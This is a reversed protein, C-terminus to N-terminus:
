ERPLLDQRFWPRPDVHTPIKGLEDYVSIQVDLVDFLDESIMKNPDTIYSFREALPLLKEFTQKVYGRQIALRVAKARNATVWKAADLMVKLFKTANAPNQEVFEKRLVILNGSIQLGYKKFPETDTERGLLVTNPLDQLQSLYPEWATAADVSGRALSAISDSANMNIIEVDKGYRLGHDKLLLFTTIEASSNPQVGIRKGRLSEITPFDAKAVMGEFGFVQDCTGVVVFNQFNQAMSGIVSSVGTQTIDLRGGAIGTMREYSAMSSFTVDFGAERFMGREIAVMIPLHGLWSSGGYNVTVKPAAALAGTSLLPMLALLTIMGVLSFIGSFSGFLRIRHGLFDKM